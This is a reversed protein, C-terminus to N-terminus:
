TVKDILKHQACYHALEVTSGVSLKDFIRSRYTSITKASLHMTQAIEGVRQGAVLQLMVRVEQPGLLTHPLGNRSEIQDLALREALSASLYREGNIVKDVAALLEDTAHEKNLYGKAGLRMVQRAFAVEDHLSLVLIPLDPAARHLQSVSEVGVADPLNLDVLALDWHQLRAAHLAAALTDVEELVLGSWRSQLLHRVGFRFIPHDEVLLIKM